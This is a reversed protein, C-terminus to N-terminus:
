NMCYVTYSKDVKLQLYITCVAARRSRSNLTHATGDTSRARSATPRHTPHPTSKIGLMRKFVHGIRSALSPPKNFYDPGCLEV